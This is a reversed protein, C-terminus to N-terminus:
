YYFFNINEETETSIWQELFSGPYEGYISLSLIDCKTTFAQEKNDNKRRKQVM